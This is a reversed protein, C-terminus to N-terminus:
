KSASDPEKAEPKTKSEDDDSEDSSEDSSSSSSILDPIEDGDSDVACPGKVRMKKTPSKAKQHPGSRKGGGHCRNEDIDVRDQTIQHVAIEVIWWMGEHGSFAPAPELTVYVTQFITDLVHLHFHKCSRGEPCELASIDDPLEIMMTFPNDLDINKKEEGISLLGLPSIANRYAEPFQVVFSERNDVLIQQGAVSYHIHKECDCDESDALQSRDLHCTVIIVSNDDHNCCDHHQTHTTDTMTAQTM